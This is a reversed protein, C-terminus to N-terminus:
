RSDNEGEDEDDQEYFKMYSKEEKYYKIRDQLTGTHLELKHGDRNTFYISQKGRIDRNRGELININNDKLWQYWKDFASEVITISYSYQIENRPIYKEKNLAIWLGGM